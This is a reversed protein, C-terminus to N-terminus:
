LSLPHRPFPPWLCLCEGGERGTKSGGKPAGTGALGLLVQRRTAPTRVGDSVRSAPFYPPINSRSFYSRPFHRVDVGSLVENGSPQLYVSQFCTQIRETLSVECANGTVGCSIIWRFKKAFRDLYSNERRLLSAMIRVFDVTKM